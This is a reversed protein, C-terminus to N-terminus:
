TINKKDERFGKRSGLQNIYSSVIIKFRGITSFTFSILIILLLSNCIRYLMRYSMKQGKGKNFNNKLDKRGYLHCSIMLFKSNTFFHVSNKMFSFFIVFLDHISLYIFHNSLCSSTRYDYFIIILIILFCQFIFLFIHNKYGLWCVLPGPLNYISCCEKTPIKWVFM